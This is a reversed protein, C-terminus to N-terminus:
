KENFVKATYIMRALLCSKLHCEISYGAVYYAFGWRKGRILARPM